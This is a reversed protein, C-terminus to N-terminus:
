VDLRIEAALEEAVLGPGLRAGAAAHLRVAASVAALAPMQRASLAGIIGALVDGSGATALEPGGNSNIAARGDPSAIVSDSGKLVIVAGSRVAAARAREHKPLEGKALDPFLRAFEGEHPTMMVTACSEHIAKFLVDGEFAFASFVDADLVVGRKVPAALIALAAEHL